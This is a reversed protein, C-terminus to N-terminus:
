ASARRPLDPSVPRLLVVYVADEGVVDFGLRGCFALSAENTREVTVRVPLNRVDAEALVERMVRTGIGGRRQDPVLTLDVVVCEGPLWAVWLRGVPQEDVLILEHVSEPFRAAWERQQASFQLELFVERGEDEWAAVDPRTTAYLARLFPEDDAAAARRETL